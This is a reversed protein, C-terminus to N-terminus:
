AADWRAILDQNYVVQGAKDGQSYCLRAESNLHVQDESALTFRFRNDPQYTRLIGVIKQKEDLFQGQANPDYNFHFTEIQDATMRVALGFGLSNYATAKILVVEIPHIEGDKEIGRSVKYAANTRSGVNTCGDEDYLSVAGQDAIFDLPLHDETSIQAFCPANPDLHQRTVRQSDRDLIVALDKKATVVNLYQMFDSPGSITKYTVRATPPIVQHQQLTEAIDSGNAVLFLRRSWRQGTEDGAEVPYYEDGEKLLMKGNDFRETRLGGALNNAIHYVVALEFLDEKIPEFPKSRPEPEETKSELLKLRKELDCASQEMPFQAPFIM